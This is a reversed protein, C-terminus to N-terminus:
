LYKKELYEHYVKGADIDSPIIGTAAVVDPHLPRQLHQRLNHAQRALFEEASTGQKESWARLFALDEDSLAVTITSM